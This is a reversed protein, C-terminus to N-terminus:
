NIIWDYEYNEIRTTPSQKGNTLTSVENGVYKNLENVTINGDKNIDAQKNFLGQIVSYTFVGNNWQEGELAFEYGGAAAIITAGNGKSTNVFYSKMLAYSNQLGLKNKDIQEGKSANYAVVNKDKLNKQLEKLTAEYFKDPDIKEQTSTKEEVYEEKDIEGSQCADILLLKKRAPIDDLLNEIDEYLLGNKEPHEFDMNHTAFYFNGNKILGHGSFSIIVKDDVKTKSLVEEKLKIINEKLAEENKFLFLKANPNNKKFQTALDDVDKAAYKLNKFTNEYESVGIGIYYTQVTVKNNNVIKIIKTLSNIGNDSTTYVKINNTGSNLNVKFIEDIELKNDLKFTNPIGNIFINVFMLGDECDSKIRLHLINDTKKIENLLSIKPAKYNENLTKNRFNLKSKESVKTLMKIFDDESFKIKELIEIPNNFYNDFQDFSFKENEVEFMIKTSAIQSGSYLFQNEDLHKKFLFDGNEFVLLDCINDYNSSIIQIEDNNSLVIFYDNYLYRKAEKIGISSNTSHFYNSISINKHNIIEYLSIILMNGNEMGIIIHKDDLSLSSTAKNDKKEIISNYIIKNQLLDYLFFSEEMNSQNSAVIGIFKNNSSKSIFKIKLDKNLEINIRDSFVTKIINGEKTSLIDDKFINFKLEENIGKKTENKSILNFKNDFEYKSGNNLFLVYKDEKQYIIAKTYNQKDISYKKLIGNKNWFLIGEKNSITIFIDNFKTTNIIKGLFKIYFLNSLTKLDFFNYENNENGVVLIKPELFDIYNIENKDINIIMKFKEKDTNLFKSFNLKIEGGNKVQHVVNKFMLYLGNIFEEDSDTNTLLTLLPEAVEWEHKLKKLFVLCYGKKTMGIRKSILNCEEIFDDTEMTKANIKEIFMKYLKYNGNYISYEISNFGDGNLTDPAFNKNILYEALESNDYKSAFHLLTYNKSSYLKLLSSDKEIIYNFVKNMKNKICFFIIHNEFLNQNYNAKNEFLYIVIDEMNNSLAWQLSTWGDYLKSKPNYEKDNPNLNLEEIAYKLFELYGKAALIGLIDGYYSTKENSLYIVGECNLSAGKRLLIKFAEINDYYACWMLLSAGNEDRINPNFSKEGISKNFLDLDYLRISEKIFKFDSYNTDNIKKSITQNPKLDPINQSWLHACFIFTILFSLTKKM